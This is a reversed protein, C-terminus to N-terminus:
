QAKAGSPRFRSLLAMVSVIAFYIALSFVIGRIPMEPNYWHYRFQYIMFVVAVLMPVTGGLRANPKLDRDVVHQIRRAIFGHLVGFFLVLPIGGNFYFAALLPMGGAYDLGFRIFVLEHESASSPLGALGWLKNPVMSRVWEIMTFQEQFTLVQHDKTDVLLLGALFVNSAGGPLAAKGKNLDRLKMIETGAPTDVRSDDRTEGVMFQLAVFALAMFMIKRKDVQLSTAWVIFVIMIGLTEVRRSHLTLWLLIITSTMWFLPRHQRGYLFLMAWFGGLCTAVLVVLPTPELRNELVEAYNATLLTPGPEIVYASCVAAVALLLVLPYPFCTPDERVFLTNKSSSAPTAISVFSIAAIAFLFVSKNILAMDGQLERSHMSFLQADMLNFAFLPSLAPFFIIVYSMVDFSLLPRMAVLWLGAIIIMISSIMYPPFNDAMGSVASAPILIGLVLCSVLWQRNDTLSMSYM